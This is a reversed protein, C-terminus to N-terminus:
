QLSSPNYRNYSSIAVEYYFGSNFTDVVEGTGWEVEVKRSIHWIGLRNMQFICKWLSVVKNVDVILRDKITAV